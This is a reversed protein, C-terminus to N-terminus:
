GGGNLRGVLEWVELLSTVQHDPVAGVDLGDALPPAPLGNDILVTRMGLRQAGVVDHPVSDGVFLAAEAPVGAAALGAEFIGLDPKCSGAAESSTCADLLPLLGAADLSPLLFDDDANSVMGVHIGAARLRDLVEAADPRPVFAGVLEATHEATFDDLVPGADVGLRAAALELQARFLDRHLYARRRAFERTVEAAAESVTSAVERDALDLGLLAMARRRAEGPLAGYECLTGGFDFLVARVAVAAGSRGGGARQTM